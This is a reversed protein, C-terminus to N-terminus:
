VDCLLHESILFCTGAHLRLCFRTLESVMSVIQLYRVVVGSRGYPACDYDTAISCFMMLTMWQVCLSPLM